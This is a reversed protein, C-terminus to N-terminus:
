NEEKEKQIQNRQRFKGIPRATGKVSSVSGHVPELNRAELVNVTHNHMIKGNLGIIAAEGQLRVAMAVYGYGRSQGSGIYRDNMIKASTIEGYPLFEQKLELETMDLPLNGVFVNISRFKETHSILRPGPM